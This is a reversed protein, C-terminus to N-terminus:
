PRSRRDVHPAPGPEHTAGAKTLRFHARRNLRWASEDHELAFPFEKGYSYTSIRHTSIGAKMLYDATAAARRHGLALNYESSGREDCHGEITLTVTTHRELWTLNKRLAALADSGITSSDYDFFIDTLEPNPADPERLPRNIDTLPPNPTIRQETTVTPKLPPAAAAPPPTLTPPPPPPPLVTRPLAPQAPPQLIAPILPPPTDKTSAEAPRAPSSTPPTTACGISTLMLAILSLQLTHPITLVSRRLRPAPSRRSRHM